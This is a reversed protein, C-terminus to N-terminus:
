ISDYRKSIPAGMKPEPVIRAKQDFPKHSYAELKTEDHRIENRFPIRFSKLKQSFIADDNTFSIQHVKWYYYADLNADRPRKKTQEIDKM